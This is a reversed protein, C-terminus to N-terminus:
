LPSALLGTADRHRPMVSTPRCLAFACYGDQTVNIQDVVEAQKPVHPWDCLVNMVGDPRVAVLIHTDYGIVMRDNNGM